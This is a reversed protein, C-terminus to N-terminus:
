KKYQAISAKSGVDMFKLNLAQEAEKIEQSFYVLLTILEDKSLKYLEDSINIKKAITNEIQKLTM